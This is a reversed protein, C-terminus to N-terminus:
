LDQSRREIITFHKFHGSESLVDHSFPSSVSHFIQVVKQPDEAGEAQHDQEQNGRYLSDDVPDGAVKLGFIRFVANGTGNIHGHLIQKVNRILHHVVQASIPLIQM